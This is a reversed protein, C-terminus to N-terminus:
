LKRMACAETDRSFYVTFDFRNGYFLKRRGDDLLSRQKGMPFLLYYLVPFFNHSLHNLLGLPLMAFGNFHVMSSSLVAIYAVLLACYLLM